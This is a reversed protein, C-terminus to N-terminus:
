MKERAKSSNDQGKLWRPRKTGYGMCEIGLRSCTDCYPKAEDCRQLDTLRSTRGCSCRGLVAGIM